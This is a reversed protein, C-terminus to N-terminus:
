PPSHILITLHYIDAQLGLTVPRRCLTEEPPQETRVTAFWSFDYGIFQTAIWGCV